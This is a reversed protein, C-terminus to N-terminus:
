KLSCTLRNTTYQQILDTGQWIGELRNGSADTYIGIGEMRNGKFQGCYSAGNSWTYLGTGEMQGAVFQGKYHDTGTAIGNGHARNQKDCAGVYKGNLYPDAVYCGEHTAVTSCGSVVSSLCLVGWYFTTTLRM